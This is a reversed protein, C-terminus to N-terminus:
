QIPGEVGVPVGAPVASAIAAPSAGRLWDYGRMGLVMGVTPAVWYLWHVAWL